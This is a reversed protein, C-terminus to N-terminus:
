NDLCLTSIHGAELLIEPSKLKLCTGKHLFVLYTSRIERASSARETCARREETVTHRLVKSTQEQVGGPNGSAEKGARQQTQWTGRRHLLGYSHTCRGRFGIHGKVLDGFLM